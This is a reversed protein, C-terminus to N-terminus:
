NDGSVSVPRWGLLRIRRAHECVDGELVPTGAKDCFWMHAGCYPCEFVEHPRVAMLM